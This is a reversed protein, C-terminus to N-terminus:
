AAEAEIQRQATKAKACNIASLISLSYKATADGQEAARQYWTVAAGEDRVEEGTYFIFGIASQAPVHGQEAARELLKVGKPRNQQVGEGRAVRRGLEYQARADGQQVALKLWKEAEDPDRVVGLGGAYAMGLRRQAPAYGREAALSFCAAAEELDITDADGRALAVALEYRARIHGMDAARRFWDRGAQLDASVGQGAAHIIGLAFIADRHGAEALPKLLDIATAYQGADYAAVARALDAHDAVAPPSDTDADADGPTQKGTTEVWAKTWVESQRRAEDVREADVGEAATKFRRRAEVNGQRAAADFWALAQGLDERVGDGKAYMTGLHLQADPHGQEASRQYWGAAASKDLAVGMGNAHMGAFVCQAEAHGQEAALRFWKVAKDNDESSKARNRFMKGLRYQANANGQEGARRFWWVSEGFDPLMGTGEAYLRALEIQAAANGAEAIPRLIKNAYDSTDLRSFADEFPGIPAEVREPRPKWTRVLHREIAGTEIAAVQEDEDLQTEPRATFVDFTGSAGMIVVSLAAFPLLALDVQWWPWGLGQTAGVFALASVTVVGVYPLPITMVAALILLSAIWNLDTWLNLAAKFAVLEVAGLGIWVVFMVIRM